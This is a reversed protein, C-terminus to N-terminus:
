STLRNILEITKEVAGRNKVVTERAKEGRRRREERDALLQHLIDYLTTTGTKAAGICMFNPLSM